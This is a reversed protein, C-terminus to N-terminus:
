RYDVIYDSPTIVTLIHQLYFVPAPGKRVIDPHGWAAKIKFARGCEKFWARWQSGQDDEFEFREHGWVLSAGAQLRLNSRPNSFSLLPWLFLLFMRSHAPKAAELAPGVLYQHPTHHNTCCGRHLPAAVYHTIASLSFSPTPRRDLHRGSPSM